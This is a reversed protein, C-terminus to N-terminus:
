LYILGSLRLNDSVSLVFLKGVWFFTWLYLM